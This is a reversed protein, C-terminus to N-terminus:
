EAREIWVINSDGVWQDFVISRGDSAVDFTGIVGPETLQTLQRSTGTGFDLLWFDSKAVYVLGSGNPLFRHHGANEGSVTLGPLPVSTGDPTVALLPRGAAVSLGEFVILRGGPSWVPNVAEATGLRVPQGGDVPVKFLGPGAADSGGVAIWHGDPSWTANGRADIGGGLSRSEGGNIAVLTLRGSAGQRLVVAAQTGDRSIAPPGVLASGDARWVEVSSNGLARWLAHSVGSPALYFLAPGALRPAFARSRAVPFPHADPAPGSASLRVERLQAAPNTVTAVIQRGDRSASVSTYSEVGLTARESVKRTVDMAYLCPGSQDPGRAIYLPTRADIVAVQTLQTDISTMQEPEGGEPSIRWLDM